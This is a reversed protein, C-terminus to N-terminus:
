GSSRPPGATRAAVTGPPRAGRCCRMSATLWGISKGELFPPVTDSVHVTVLVVTSGSRYLVSGPSNQIYGREITIPRLQDHNRGDVRDSNMPELVAPCSRDSLAYTFEM